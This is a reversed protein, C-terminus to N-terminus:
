YQWHATSQAGVCVPSGAPYLDWWSKRLHTASPACLSESELIIYSDQPLLLGSGLYDAPAKVM